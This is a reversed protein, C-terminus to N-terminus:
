IERSKGRRAMFRLTAILSGNSLDEVVEVHITKTSFCVFLSVGAKRNARGWIGSKIAM